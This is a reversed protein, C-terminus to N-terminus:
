RMLLFTIPLKHQGARRSPLELTPHPIQKGTSRDEALEKRERRRLHFERDRSPVRTRGSSSKRRRKCPPSIRPYYDMVGRILEDCGTAVDIGLREPVSVLYVGLVAADDPDVAPDIPKSGTRKELLGFELCPAVVWQYGHLGAPVANRASGAKPDPPAPGADAGQWDHAKRQLLYLAPGLPSQFVMGEEDLFPGRIGM